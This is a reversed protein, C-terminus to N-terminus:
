LVEDSTPYLTVRVDPLPVMLRGGKHMYDGCKAAIENFFAWAFILLYDPPNQELAERGRILFHSGPTYFGSKAPADDIMYELHDRNIGCYQIM